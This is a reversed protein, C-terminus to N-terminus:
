GGANRGREWREILRPFEQEIYEHLDHIDQLRQRVALSEGALLDLGREAMHHLMSIQELRVRMLNSWMDPKIRFYDRRGGPFSVKEIMGIQMLRRTM